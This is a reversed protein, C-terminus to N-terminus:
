KLAGRLVKRMGGALSLVTGSVHTASELSLGHSTVLLVCELEVPSVAALSSSLSFLRQCIKMNIQLRIM